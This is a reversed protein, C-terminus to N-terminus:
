LELKALSLFFEAKSIFTKNEKEEFILDFSLCVYGSRVSYVNFFNEKVLESELIVRKLFAVDFGRILTIEETFCRPYFDRKTEVLMRSLFYVYDKEPSSQMYSEKLNFTYKKNLLENKSFFSNLVNMLEDKELRMKVSSPNEQDLVKEKEM